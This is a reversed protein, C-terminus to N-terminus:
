RLSDHPDTLRTLRARRAGEMANPLRDYSFIDMPKVFYGDAGGALARKRDAESSSSTVVLVPIEKFAAHARLHALVEHGDIRPLNLDIVVLEPLSEPGGDAIQLLLEIAQEGNRVRRIQRATPAADVARQLLYMDTDSDEIVLIWSGRGPNLADEM